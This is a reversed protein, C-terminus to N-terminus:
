RTGPGTGELTDRRTEEEEELSVEEPVQAGDYRIREQAGGDRTKNDPSSGSGTGPSSL